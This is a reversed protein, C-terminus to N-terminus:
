LQSASSRPGGRMSNSMSSESHQSFRMSAVIIRSSSLESIKKQALRNYFPHGNGYHKIFEEFIELDGIEKIHDWAMAAEGADGSKTQIPSVGPAPKAGLRVLAEYIKERETVLSINYGNFPLPIAGASLDDTRVCILKNQDDARKAEAYVWKSKVALPSWITVVAKAADIQDMIVQFFVDSPLM